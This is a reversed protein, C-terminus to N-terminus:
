AFTSPSLTCMQRIAGLMGPGRDYDGSAIQGGSRWIMDFAYYLQTM